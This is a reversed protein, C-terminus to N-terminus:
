NNTNTKRRNTPTWELKRPLLRVDIGGQPFTEDVQGFFLETAVCLCLDFTYNIPYQRLQESLVNAAVWFCRTRLVYIIKKLLLGIWVEKYM